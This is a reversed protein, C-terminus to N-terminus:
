QPEAWTMGHAPFYITWQAQLAESLAESQPRLGGHCGRVWIAGKRLRQKESAQSAKQEMSPQVCSEAKREQPTRCV